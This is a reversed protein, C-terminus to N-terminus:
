GDELRHDWGRGCFGQANRGEDGCGVHRSQLAGAGFQYGGGRGRSDRDEHEFTKGQRSKHVWRRHRSGHVIRIQQDGLRISSPERLDEVAEAIAVVETPLLIEIKGAHSVANIYVRPHHICCPNRGSSSEPRHCEVFHPRAALWPKETSDSRPRQTGYVCNKVDRGMGNMVMTQTTCQPHYVKQRAKPLPGIGEVVVRGDGGRKLPAEPM